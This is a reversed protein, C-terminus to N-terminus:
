GNLKEWKDAAISGAWCCATKLDGINELHEIIRNITRLIKPNHQYSSRELMDACFSFMTGVHKSEHLWGTDLGFREIHRAIQQIDSESPRPLKVIDKDIAKILQKYLGRLKSPYM